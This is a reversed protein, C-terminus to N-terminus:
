SDTTEEVKAVSALFDLAKEDCIQRRATRVLAEEGWAERLKEPAVGQHSALDRIRAEIESTEAELGRDRAVAELLLTERVEREAEERWEERWRSLQADLEEEPLSAGLRQRAMALQRELAREALGPPVDFPTREILADILTRRLQQRASGERMRLADSRIREKLEDLSEFEGMDKAFEDDLEPLQRRKVDAVHVEFEARKGALEASGYDEPFTVTVQRDEGARAGVLQEEFEPLFRGSGLELEVDRGTGGEFPEGDIRGVFDVSLIHGPGAQTGEPEEVVPANRERLAELQRGVEEDTVSVAPKRAPLGELEGLEIEPKVEVRATYTFDADDTPPQADVSPHTVPELGTQEIADGLTEEVLKHEIQEALSAGYLRELVTRPVKGPRFGRVRAQRALDRYARDFAERVRSAAVTVEVRHSVASEATAVTHISSDESSM